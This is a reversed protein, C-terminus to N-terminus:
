DYSEGALTVPLKKNKGTSKIQVRPTYLPLPPLRYLTHLPHLGRALTPKCVMYVKYVNFINYGKGTYVGCTFVAKIKIANIKM